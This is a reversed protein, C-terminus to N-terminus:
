KLLVDDIISQNKKKFKVMETFTDTTPNFGGGGQMKHSEIERTLRNSISELLVHFELIFKDKARERDTYDPGEKEKRAFNSAAKNCNDCLGYPKDNAISRGCARCSAM